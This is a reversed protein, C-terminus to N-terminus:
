FKWKIQCKLELQLANQETYEFRHFSSENTSLIGVKTRIDLTKGLPLKILFFSKVGDGHYAPISFTYLVDNEYAYLRNEYRDTRFFAVRWTISTSHKKSKWQLDHYLLTGFTPEENEKSLSSVALRTRVKTQRSLQKEFHIRLRTLQGFQGAREPSGDEWMMKKAEHKLRIYGHSARNPRIHFEGQIETGIPPSTTRFQPWFARYQDVFINWWIKKSLIGELGLFLGEENSTKSSEGIGTSNLHIFGISYRRYHITLNLRPSLSGLFGQVVAFGGRHDRCVEGFLLGLDTSWEHSFGIKSYSKGHYEWNRYNATRTDVFNSFSSQVAHARVTFGALRYSLQGGYQTQGLRDKKNIESATRHLGSLDFSRAIVDGNFSSAPLTDIRADLSNKSVFVTMSWSKWDFEAAAGRLASNENLSRHANISRRAQKMQGHLTSKGISFSSGLTLGEGFHVQYDGLSLNNLFGVNSLQVYGSFYDPTYGSLAEGADKEATLGWSLHRGKQARYRLAWRDPGGVFAGVTEPFRRKWDLVLEQEINGEKFETFDNQANNVYAFYSLLLLKNKDVGTQQLEYISIFAGISKRFELLMSIEESSLIQLSQLTSFDAKNLNISKKRSLWAEADELPADINEALNELIRTELDRENQGFALLCILLFVMSLTLRHM